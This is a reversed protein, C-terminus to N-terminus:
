WYVKTHEITKANLWRDLDPDVQYIYTYLSAITFLPTTFIITCHYVCVTTFMYVICTSSRFRWSIIPFITFTGDSSSFGRCSTLIWNYKYDAAIKGNHVCNYSTSNLQLRFFNITLRLEERGSRVLIIIWEVQYICNVLLSSLVDNIVERPRSSLCNRFPHNPYWVIRYM